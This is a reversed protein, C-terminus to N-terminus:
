VTSVPPKNEPKASPGKVTNAQQNAQGTNANNANGQEVDGFTGINTNQVNAQPAIPVIQIQKQDSDNKQWGGSSTSSCGCSSHTSKATNEQQNAQGTNANNANGQEVDGFTLLNVNQVNV